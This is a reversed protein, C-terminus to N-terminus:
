AQQLTDAIWDGLRTWGATAHRSTILSMHDVPTKASTWDEDALLFTSNKPRFAELFARAAEPHAAIKDDIGVVSLIPIEIGNLRELYTLGVTDPAWRDAFWWGILDELYIRSEDVTGLKLAVVPVTGMITVCLKGLMMGLTKQIRRRRSSELKPLWVNTSILAIADVHHFHGSAAAALGVHGGLSHGLWCIPLDPYLARVRKLVAPVDYEVLAAYSYADTVNTGRGRFNFLFTVFGREALASAFGSREFTRMDVMMAHACIVVGRIMANPSRYIRADLVQEDATM